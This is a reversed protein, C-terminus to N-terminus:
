MLARLKIQERRARMYGRIYVRRNLGAQASATRRAEDVAARRRSNVQKRLEDWRNRTPLFEMFPRLEPPLLDGPDNRRYLWQVKSTLVRWRATPLAILAQVLEKM